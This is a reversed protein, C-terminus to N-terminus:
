SEGREIFCRQQRRRSELPTASVATVVRGRQAHAGSFPSWIPVVKGRTVRPEDGGPLQGGPPERRILRGANVCLLHRIRGRIQATQVSRSLATILFLM